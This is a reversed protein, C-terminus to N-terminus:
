AGQQNTEDNDRRKWIQIYAESLTIMQPLIDTVQLDQLEYWKGTGHHLVHIRYSGESPKGDHVINAILDYTTNKHVAQVEESLYERLDVNTIPFNVITPNKEVFFNNKTFRKICFILYPPLKTLQFRKLFNEKYTKYEKETIGNFKALINFLPVQPIILQEKEDKYLPATPLDLTLYMFTSEVMTEQYEDNHLLQEKEEAPLDPHPLKKTFIRMSGQFVDTVITKKKKKTGGLASHLANLFWSLFDVGDGQKTIQFTKKSCLVVAQLMEHPSVHAKFNRPNWLKRMLEGFRQVLLFMIDGPPRKINKYNDEELFYNRLPPVNSLAQLVANAYDNAKINNLGVIGPLYTTGDYARSLKAQKDLNAIQQKTFTPKLVYTIDELSSDIIEYNDPLCYFKLTHLNLFVHHSFQVSHIYAHSKLGRGTLPIWTRAIAAGGTRLIWAAMRQEREPESDEDAERERKVRVAPVVPTPAERASVPEVERKVRVPSGRSSPAETERERDRERKVRGSSGRSESERKGRTSGRSERKSRGSM